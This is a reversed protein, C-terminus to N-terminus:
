AAGGRRARRQFCRVVPEAVDGATSVEFWDARARRVGALFAERRRSAAERWAKRVAKSSSDVEIAGGDMGAAELVLLGADPLEEEFPDVVRVCIVDHRRALRALSEVWGDREADLFDSVLLVLARRKLHQQQHDLVLELGPERGQGTPATGTTVASGAGTSAAGTAGAMIERVVRLIHRHGTDPALHLGPVEDFLCLGVQDQNGAAVFSLLACVEAAAERKTKDRSGFRMAAKTDVVLQLVLQREEVYTKIFPDGTRATVKWDISRVEDGPLYPRVEEFELGSGRVNSRYAGQLASSVLGHTRIQIQRVRAMLEPALLPEDKEQTTAM